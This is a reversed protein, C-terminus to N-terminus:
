FQWIVDTALLFQDDETFDDFPTAGDVKDWRVEPRVTVCEIPTWNFGATVDYYTAPTGFVLPVRFGDDDRFVEGRVGARVNDTLQYFMYNTISYWEADESSPGFADDQFGNDHELVYTLNETLQLTLVVSYMTRNEYFRPDLSTREDGTIATVALSATEDENTFTVGSIYSVSNNTNDWNDWGQVVGGVATVRDTVSYTSLVGTHTFPEGYQHTYPHSLFFNGTAPVVEYGIPTYFHGVKTSLGNGGVEAYLQPMALGYLAGTNPGFARNPGDQRNWRQTGDQELELGLAQTYYYDTGYLLDLRGGLQWEEADRDVAKEFILYLQNMQYENARDNFVVPGNINNAPNDPNWTFSQDLWGYIEFGGTSDSIWNNGCDDEFLGMLCRCEPEEAEEEETCGTDACGGNSTTCGNGNAAPACAEAGFAAGGCFAGLGSALLALTRAKRLAWEVSMTRM